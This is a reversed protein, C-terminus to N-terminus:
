KNEWSRWVIQDGVFLVLGESWSELRITGYEEVIKNLVISMDAVRWSKDKQLGFIIEKEKKEEEFKILGVAELSKILSVSNDNGLDNCKKIAEERTM